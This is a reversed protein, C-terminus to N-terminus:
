LNELNWLKLINKDLMNWLRGKDWINSSHPSTFTTSSQAAMTDMHQVMSVQDDDHDNKEDDRDDTLIMLLSVWDVTAGEVEVPVSALPAQCWALSDQLLPTM